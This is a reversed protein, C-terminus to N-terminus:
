PLWRLSWQSPGAAVSQGRNAPRARHVGEHKGMDSTPAVLRDALEPLESRLRDELRTMVTGKPARRPRTAALSRVTSPRVGLVDAIEADPIDVFYRLVM